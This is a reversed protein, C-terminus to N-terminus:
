SSTPYRTKQITAILVQQTTYLETIGAAAYIKKIRDDGDIAGYEGSWIYSEVFAQHYDRQRCRQGTYSGDAVNFSDLVKPNKFESDM